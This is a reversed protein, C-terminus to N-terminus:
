VRRILGEPIENIFRSIKQEMTMGAIMRLRSGSLYLKDKARTVAVYFLRREEQMDKPNSFSRAHPFIGEEIGVTFVIPFELGKATHVTMLKVMDKDDKIQDQDSLLSIGSLFSTMTPSASESQYREAVILLENLNDIRVLSEESGDEILIAVYQTDHWIKTIIDTLKNEQNNSYERLDKILDLFGSLKDRTGKSLKPVEDFRELADPFSIGADRAFQEIKKITTDGIGRKPVNIIRRLALSDFENTLIRLYAIMDKIEKRDYFALGGVIQYPIQNQILAEEIARSQTNTRYLISFDGYNREEVKMTRKILAAILRAEDTEDEAHHFVIPVGASNETWLEKTIQEKNNSIVANAARIITSTSRYNQELKVIETDEHEGLSLIHSIDSGRFSYISQSIDGVVFLNNNETHLLQLLDNQSSNVDQFEDVLIHEFKNQFTGRINKNSQLLQVPKMILDDFDLSNNEALLEQYRHYANSVDKEAKKIAKEMLEQQTVMNNKAKSIMDAVFEPKYGDEIGVQKMAQKILKLQDKSDLITFGSQVGVSAGFKSLMRVGIGHFTGIWSYRVSNGVLNSLRSRMENAAKNTFTVALVRSPDVGNYIKHAIRYALTRTKGSGAGALVLINKSESLAAKSQAKNLEQLIKM